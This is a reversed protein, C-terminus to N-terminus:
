VEQHGSAPGRVVEPPVVDPWKADPQLILTLLYPPSPSSFLFSAINYFCAQKFYPLVKKLAVSM